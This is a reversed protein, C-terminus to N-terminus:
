NNKKKKVALICIATGGILVTCAVPIATVSSKCGKEKRTVTVTTTFDKAGNDFDVEIYTDNSPAYANPGKFGTDPDNGFKEKEWDPATLLTESSGITIRDIKLTSQQIGNVYIRFRVLADFNVEGGTFEGDSGKLVLWNWGKQFKEIGWQSIEWKLENTDNRDSSSIEIQGNLNKKLTTGDAEFYYAPDEIWIWFAFIFTSKRLDTEGCEFQAHLDYGAGSTYVCGSEYRHDQRDVKNGTFVGGNSTTNCDIIVKEAIPNLGEEINSVTEAVAMETLDTAIISFQALAIKNKGETVSAAVDKGECEVGLSSIAGFDFQSDTGAKVPLVIYNWGVICDTFLSHIEFTLKNAGKYAGSYAAVTWGGTIDKYANLTNENEIYLWFALAGNEAFKSANYTKALTVQKQAFRGWGKDIISYATINKKSRILTVKDFEEVSRVSLSIGTDNEVSRSTEDTSILKFEAFAVECEGEGFAKDWAIQLFKVNSWDIEGKNDATNVPLSITNWGVSCDAFQASIDFAYGNEANFGNGSGLTIFYNSAIARHAELTTEDAFYMGFSLVSKGYLDHKALDYGKDFAILQTKAGWNKGIASYSTKGELLQTDATLDAASGVGFAVDDPKTMQTKKNIVVPETEETLFFGFNAFALDAQGAGVGDLVVFRLNEVTDATEPGGGHKVCMSSSFPIIIKNWGIMCDDALSSINFEWKKTESFGKTSLNLGIPKGSRMNDLAAQNHVYIWFEFAGKQNTSIAGVNYPKDFVTARVMGGWSSWNGNMNGIVYQATTNEDLQKIAALAASTQDTALGDINSSFSVIGGEETLTVTRDPEPETPEVYGVVTPETVGSHVIQMNATAVRCATAGSVNLRINRVDSWDMDNKENASELPIILQNWGVSCKAFLPQINICYKHQDSYSAGSSIDINYASLAAKDTERDFYVWVSLASDSAKNVSYVKDLSLVTLFGGKDKNYYATFSEGLDPINMTETDVGSVAGHGFTVVPDGTITNKSLSTTTFSIEAVKGYYGGSVGFGTTNIRASKVASWNMGKKDGEGVGSFPMVIRQWGIRADAFDTGVMTFTWKYDDSYTENSSVDFNWRHNETRSKYIDLAAQDPIYLWFSLAGKGSNLIPSVDKTETFTLCKPFGGWGNWGVATVNEKGYINNDTTKELDEHTGIEVGVDALTEDAKAGFVTVISFALSVTFLILTFLLAFNRIKTKNM